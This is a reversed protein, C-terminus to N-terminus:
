KNKKFPQNRRELVLNNGYDRNDNAWTKYKGMRECLKLFEEFRQGPSLAYFAKEQERKSQEKTIFRIEPM